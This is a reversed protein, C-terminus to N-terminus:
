VNTEDTTEVVAPEDVKRSRKAPEDDPVVIEVNGSKIFKSAIPIELSVISGSPIREADEDWIDAIVRVKLKAM